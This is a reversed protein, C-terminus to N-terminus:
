IIVIFKLDIKDNDDQITNESRRRRDDIKIEDM